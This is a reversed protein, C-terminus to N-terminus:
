QQQQEVPGGISAPHDDEESHPGGHFSTHAHGIPAGEQDDFSHFSCSHSPIWPGLCMSYELMSTVASGGSPTMRGGDMAPRGAMMASPTGAGGTVKKAADLAKEL